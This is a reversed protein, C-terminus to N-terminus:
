LEPLCCDGYDFGYAPVNLHGNCIGNGLAEATLSKRCISVGGGHLTVEASQDPSHDACGVSIVKEDSMGFTYLYGSMMGKMVNGANTPDDDDGLPKSSFAQIKAKRTKTTWGIRRDTRWLM